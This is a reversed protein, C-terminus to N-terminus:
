KDNNITPLIVTILEDTELPDQTRKPPVHKKARSILVLLASAILIITIGALM